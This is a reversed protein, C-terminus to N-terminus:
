EDDVVADYVSVELSDIGPTLKVRARTSVDGPKSQTGASSGGDSSSQLGSLHITNVRFSTNDSRNRSSRGRLATRSNLSALLSNAYVVCTLTLVM